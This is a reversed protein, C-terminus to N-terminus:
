RLDDNSGRGVPAISSRDESGSRHADNLRRRTPEKSCFHTTEVTYDVTVVRAISDAIRM